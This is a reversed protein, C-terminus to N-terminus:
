MSWSVSSGLIKWKTLARKSKPANIHAISPWGDEKTWGTLLIGSSKGQFANTRTDVLALYNKMISQEQFQQSLSKAVGETLALVLCGTTSKDLRHVTRLKGVSLM